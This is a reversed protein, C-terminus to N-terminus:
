CGTRSPDPNKAAEEHVDVVVLALIMELRAKRLILLGATQAWHDHVAVVITIPISPVHDRGDDAAVGAGEGVGAAAFFYYKL